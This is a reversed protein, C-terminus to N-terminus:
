LKRVQFCNSWSPVYPIESGGLDNLTWFTIMNIAYSKFKLLLYIVTEIVVHPQRGKWKSKYWGTHYGVLIISGFLSLKPCFLICTRCTLKSALNEESLRLINRYCGPCM